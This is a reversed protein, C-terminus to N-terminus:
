LIPWGSGLQSLSSSTWVLYCCWLPLGCSWVSFWQEARSPFEARTAQFTSSGLYNQFLSFYIWILPHSVWGSSLVCSHDEWIFLVVNSPSCRSLTTAKLLQYRDGGERLKSISNSGQLVFWSWPHGLVPRRQTRCFFSLSSSACCPGQPNSLWTRARRILGERSRMFKMEFILPLFFFFTQLKLLRLNWSQSVPPLLSWSM